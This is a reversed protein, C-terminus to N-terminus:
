INENSEIYGFHGYFNILTNLCEVSAKCKNEFIKKHIQKGKNFNNTNMCARLAMLNLVSDNLLEYEDYLQLAKENLGNSMMAKMINSIVYENRENQEIGEWMKFANIMDGFTGYFEILSTKLETTLESDNINEIIALGKIANDSHTCSKIALLHSVNDTLANYKDYLELANKYQENNALATLMANISIVYLVNM